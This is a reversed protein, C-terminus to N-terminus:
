QQEASGATVQSQKLAACIEKRCQGCQSAVPLHARVQPLTRAGNRIVEQLQRDTVAACICVYM